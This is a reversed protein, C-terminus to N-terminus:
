KLGIQRPEEPDWLILRSVPSCLLTNKEKFVDFMALWCIFGPVGHKRSGMISICTTLTSSRAPIM